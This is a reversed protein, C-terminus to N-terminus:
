NCFMIIDNEIYPNHKRGTPSSRGKCAPVRIPSNTIKRATTNLCRVHPVQNLRERRADREVAKSRCSSSLKVNIGLIGHRFDVDPM